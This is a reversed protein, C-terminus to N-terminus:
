KKFPKIVISEEKTKKIFEFSYKYEEDKEIKIKLRMLVKEADDITNSPIRFRYIFTSLTMELTRDVNDQLFENLYFRHEKLEKESKKYLYSIYLIILTTFVIFEVLNFEVARGSGTFRTYRLFM